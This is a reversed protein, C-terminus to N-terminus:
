TGGVAHFVIPRTGLSADKLLGTPDLSIATQGYHTSEFGMGTKGQARFEVPGAKAEQLQQTRTSAVFHACIWKELETLLSDDLGAASFLNDVFVSASTVYAVLDDDSVETELIQRIALVDTRPM